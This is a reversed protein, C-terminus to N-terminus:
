LVRNPIGLSTWVRALAPFRCEAVQSAHHEVTSSYMAMLAQGSTAHLSRTTTRYSYLSGNPCGLEAARKTCSLSHDGDFAPGTWATSSRERKHSTDSQRSAATPPSFSTHGHFCWARHIGVESDGLDWVGRVVRSGPGFRAVPSLRYVKQLCLVGRVRRMRAIISWGRSCIALMPFGRPVVPGIPNTRITGRVSRVAWRSLLRIPIM